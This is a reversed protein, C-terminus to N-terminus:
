RGVFPNLFPLFTDNNGLCHPPSLVVVVPLLLLVPRLELLLLLVLDLDLARRPAGVFLSRAGLVALLQYCGDGTRVAAAVVVVVGVCGVHPAEAGVGDGAVNGVGAFSANGVFPVATQVRDAM